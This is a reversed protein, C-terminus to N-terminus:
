RACRCAGKEAGHRRPKGHFGRREWAGPGEPTGPVHFVFRACGAERYRVRVAMCPAERFSGHISRYLVGGRAFYLLKKCKEEPSRKLLDFPLFAPAQRHPKGHPVPAFPLHPCPRVQWKCGDGMAVRRKRRAGAAGHRRRGTGEAHLGYRWSGTKRRRAIRVAHPVEIRVLKCASGKCSRIQMCRTPAGQALLAAYARGTTTHM